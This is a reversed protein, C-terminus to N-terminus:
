NSWPSGTGFLFPWEMEGSELVSSSNMVYYDVFVM